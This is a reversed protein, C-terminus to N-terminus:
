CTHYGDGEEVLLIFLRAPIDLIDVRPAACQVFLYTRTHYGEGKEVLVIFLRAPIIVMKKRLWCLSCGLSATIIVMEEEVLVICLSAPIDLIERRLLVIFLCTLLLIFLSAPLLFNCIFYYPNPDSVSHQNFLM